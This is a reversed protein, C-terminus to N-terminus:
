SPQNDVLGHCGARRSGTLYNSTKVGGQARNAFVLPIGSQGNLRVLEFLRL